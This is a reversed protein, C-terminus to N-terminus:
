ETDSGLAVGGRRPDASGCYTGTLSDRFIVQAGGFFLDHSSYARVSHGMKTLEAQVEESIGGEIALNDEFKQCYFRPADNAEWANMGFDIANVILEVVTTIIRSAGPSGIAMVARNDKLVITPSISSRPQKGPEAVNIASTLSFNSMGCNMLVGSATIGSGFFTGLTQTLSVMNGHSDAVSLHTTHGDVEDIDHQTDNDTTDAKAGKKTKVATTNKAKRSGWSDFLDEGWTDYSSRGEDEEDDFVSQREGSTEDPGSYTEDTEFDYTAPNGAQTQRYTEPEARYQNIDAFREYAFDKSVLGRLPIYGSEPDGLYQWRDAYSRRFTETMLHLTAASQTYHGMAALDANELMNLSQIVTSGSQPASASLIGYGRYTGRVPVTLTPEFAAFDDATLVGGLRNVEAIITNAVEGKYFGDRGNEAVARLSRALAPQIILDGEMRPFGEDLFVAATSDHRQILTMNDLVLQALTRDCAFGEEALRIAPEMVMERSLTGFKELAMLLGAVTGPILVSKGTHRDTDPNYNLKNVAAPAQQYYNIYHAARTDNLYIVMGGGGGIGSGDPEVVGIAFAAAVAADVANGGQRLMAMGAEAALPHAVAVIGQPSCVLGSDEVAEQAGAASATASAAVLLIILAFWTYKKKM